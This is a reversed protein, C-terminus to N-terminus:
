ASITTGCGPVARGRRYETYAAAPRPTTARVSRRTLPLRLSRTRRRVRGGQSRRAFILGAVIAIAVGGVAVPIATWLPFATASTVSLKVIASYVVGAGTTAGLTLYYVGPNLGQLSLSLDTDAHGGPALLLTSNGFTATLNQLAGTASIGSLSLSLRTTNDSAQSFELPISVKGGPGVSLAAGPLSLAM